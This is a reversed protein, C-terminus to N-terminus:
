GVLVARDKLSLSSRCMATRLLVSSSQPEGCGCVGYTIRRGVSSRCHWLRPPSFVMGIHTASAEIDVKPRGNPCVREIWINRRGEYLDYDQRVSKPIEGNLVRCIRLYMKHIAPQYFM